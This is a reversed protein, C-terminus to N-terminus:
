KNVQYNPAQKDIQVSHVHSESIGAATLQVFEAKHYLDSLDKAGIYGMGSRLGGTLQHVIPKISGKYKIRGEIGEPVLKESDKTDHQFYRDKSSQKNAMAGISGMGRYEKYKEKTNPDIKIEGPAEDTGAFISGLMVCNAGAAIAKVIDGSHKIGGDAILSVNTNELAKAVNIIATIQPVGVGSVIRTTCISGPGIGVKVADVGADVLAKAADYSAINGGIVQMSPYEKKIWKIVDIVKKSHGHATDVIIVDVKAEVLAKVRQMTDDSTGVAAGVLLNKDHNKIKIIEDAQKEIEMSKHIIGLGGEKALNLAMNGETVTDMASSLIPINLLIKSTLRTKLSVDKPLIDSYKPVLLVDDFTLGKEIIKMYM